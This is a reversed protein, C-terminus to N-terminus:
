FPDYDYGNDKKSQKVELVSKLSEHHHVATRKLENERISIHKELKNISIYIQEKVERDILVRPYRKIAKYSKLMESQHEIVKCLGKMNDLDHRDMKSLEGELYFLSNKVRQVYIRVSLIPDDISANVATLRTLYKEASRAEDIALNLYLDPNQMRMKLLFM